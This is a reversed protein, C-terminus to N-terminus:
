DSSPVSVFGGFRHGNQFRGVCSEDYTKNCGRRLTYPEGIVSATFPYDVTVTPGDSAAVMRSEGAITLVGDTFHGEPESRDSLTVTKGETDIAQVTGNVTVSALDIGCEPSGFKWNCLKRYRRKPTAVTLTDLRSRVTVQMAHENLTPADMLGDFVTVAHDPDDLLGFFVKLIRCRRGSLDTHAVYASMDRNINDISVTCEDVRTEVNTKIPTRSVGIPLYTVPSGQEDFFPVPEDHAALFLTVEPLYVQYLEIPRNESKDKEAVITPALDRM